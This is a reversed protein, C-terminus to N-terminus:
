KEDKLHSKVVYSAFPLLLKGVYIHSKKPLLDFTNM